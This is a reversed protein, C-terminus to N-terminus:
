VSRMRKNLGGNSATVSLDGPVSGTGPSAIEDGREGLGWTTTM